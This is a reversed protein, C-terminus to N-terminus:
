GERYSNMAMQRLEQSLLKQYELCARYLVKLIKSYNKRSNIKDQSYQLLSYKQVDRLKQQFNQREDKNFNKLLRFFKLEGKKCYLIEVLCLLERIRFGFLYNRLESSIQFINRLYEVGAKLGPYQEFLERVTSDKDYIKHAILDESFRILFKELSELVSETLGFILPSKEEFDFNNKIEKQANESLKAQMYYALIMDELTTSEQTPAEKIAKDTETSIAKILVCGSLVKKLLIQSVFAEDVIFEDENNFDTSCYVQGSLLGSMGSDLQIIQDERIDKLSLKTKKNFSCRELLESFHENELTDNQIKIFADIIGVIKSDAGAVM